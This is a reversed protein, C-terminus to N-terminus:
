YQQYHQYYDKDEKDPLITTTWREGSSGWVVLIPGISSANTTYYHNHHQLNDRDDKDPLITTNCDEGCSGWVLLM